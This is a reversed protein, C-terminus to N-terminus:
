WLSEDGIGKILGVEPTSPLGQTSSWSGEARILASVCSERWATGKGNFGTIAIATMLPRSCVTFFGSMNIRDARHANAAGIRSHGRRGPCRFPSLRWAVQRGRLTNGCHRPCLPGAASEVGGLLPGAAVPRGAARKPELGSHGSARSSLAPLGARRCASKARAPPSRVTLFTSM